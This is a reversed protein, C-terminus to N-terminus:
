IDTRGFCSRESFEVGCDGRPRCTLFDNWDPVPVGEIRHGKEDVLSLDFRMLVYAVLIKMTLTALGLWHIDWQLPNPYIESNLLSDSFPYLVLSNSPITYLSVTLEPGLNKRVATHPQARRLTERICLDLQPTKSEWSILPIISLANIISQKSEKSSSHINILSEIERCIMSSWQREYSLFILLWQAITGTSRAGAIPLGMMFGVINKPSEGADLLQQLTDNRRIGSGKRDSVANSFVRYLSVSAWLKRAAVFGPIWSYLGRAPKVSSDLINYFYKLCTVLAEDEAVDYSSVTRIIMQFTVDHVTSCPDLFGEKGWLSIKRHCESLLGPLLSKLNDTRQIASLRKYIGSLAHPDIGKPIITFLDRFGEYLNLSKERFFVRRAEDGSVVTVEHQFLRFRFISSSTAIFGGALFDFPTEFLYQAIKGSSLTLQPPSNHNKTPPFRTAYFFLYIGFLLLAYGVLPSKFPLQSINETFTFSGLTDQLAM